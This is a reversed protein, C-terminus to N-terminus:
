LSMQKSPPGGTSPNPPPWPLSLLALCSGSFVAWLTRTCPPATHPQLGRFSPCAKPATSLGPACASASIGTISPSKRGTSCTLRSNPLLRPEPHLTPARLPLHCRHSPILESYPGGVVGGVCNQLTPSWNASPTQFVSLGPAFCRLGTPPVRPFVHSACHHGLFASRHGHTPADRWFLPSM